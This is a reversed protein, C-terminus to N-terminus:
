GVARQELRPLVQERLAHAQPSDPYQAILENAVRMAASLQHEKLLTRIEAEMEQRKQIEANARLTGLQIRLEQAEASGPYRAIVMEVLRLAQGWQRRNTAEQARAMLRAREEASAKERAQAVRRTLEAVQESAPHRQRLTRVIEVARDWAGLAALDDVERTAVELDHAEFQARAQEIQRALEDWHTLSPFRRRARMLRQHAEQLDHERLLAPIDHELQRVLEDAEHQLRAAREPESLLEIDRLERTLHVLEELWHAQDSPADVVPTRVPAMTGAGLKDLVQDLNRLAEAV